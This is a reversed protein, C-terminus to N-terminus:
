KKSATWSGKEVEEGAAKNRVSYTGKLSADEIAAELIIQAEGDPSEFTINVKDGTQEMSKSQLTSPEGQDPTTNITASLKGGNDKTISMEFKGSSGGTWSGVWKGVLKDSQGTQGSFAFCNISLILLLLLVFVPHRM